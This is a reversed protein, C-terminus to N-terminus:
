AVLMFAYGAAFVLALALFERIFAKNTMSQNRRPFRNNTDKTNNISCRVFCSCLVYLWAVRIKL